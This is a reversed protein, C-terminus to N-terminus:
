STKPLLFFLISTLALLASLSRHLRASRLLALKLQSALQKNGLHLENHTRAYTCTIFVEGM